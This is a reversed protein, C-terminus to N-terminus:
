LIVDGFVIIMSAGGIATVVMIFAILFLLILFLLTCLIM